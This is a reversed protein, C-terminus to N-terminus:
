AVEPLQHIGGSEVSKYKIEVDYPSIINSHMYKVKCMHM